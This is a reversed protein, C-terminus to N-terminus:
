EENKRPNQQLLLKQKPKRLFDPLHFITLWLLRTARVQAYNPDRNRMMIIRM